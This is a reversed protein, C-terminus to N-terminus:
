AHDESEYFFILDLAFGRASTPDLGRGGLGRQRRDDGADLLPPPAARRHLQEIAPLHAGKDARLAIAASPKVAAAARHLREGVQISQCARHLTQPTADKGAALRELKFVDACLPTDM